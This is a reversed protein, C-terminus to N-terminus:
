RNRTTNVKVIIQANAQLTKRMSYPNLRYTTCAAGGMMSSAILVLKLWRIM